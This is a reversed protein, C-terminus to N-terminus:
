IWLFVGFSYVVMTLFYHFEEEFGLVDGNVFGLTKDSLVYTVPISILLLLVPPLIITYLSNTLIKVFISLFLSFFGGVVIDKLKLNKKIIRSIGNPPEKGVYSLVIMSYSSWIESLLIMSMLIEVNNKSVIERTFSYLGLVFITFVTIAYSGRYKDKVVKYANVGFRHALLAESFDIFGDAHLFGQVIYHMAIIAFTKIFVSDIHFRTFFYIPTSIIIGKIFGILPILYLSKFEFHTTNIPLPIPTLFSLLQLFNELLQLMDEKIKKIM